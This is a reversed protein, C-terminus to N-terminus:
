DERLCGAVSRCPDNKVQSSLFVRAEERVRDCYKSGIKELKSRIAIRM